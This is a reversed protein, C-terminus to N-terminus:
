MASMKIAGHYRCCLSRHCELVVGFDDTVGPGVWMHFLIEGDAKLYRQNDKSIREIIDIRLKILGSHFRGKRWCDYLYFVPGELTM